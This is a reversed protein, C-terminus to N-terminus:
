PVQRVMDHGGYPNPARVTCAPDDCWEGDVIFLYHHTGSPLKLSTTWVGNGGKEMAIAKQQWETFDGVLLVSMANPATYSFVQNKPRKRRKSV